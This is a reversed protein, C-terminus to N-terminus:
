RVYVPVDGTARGALAARVEGARGEAVVGGGPDVEAEIGEGELLRVIEAAPGQARLVFTTGPPAAQAPAAETQLTTDAGEEAGGEDAAADMTAEAAEDADDDGGGGLQTGGVVFVVALAAAAAVPAAVVLARKVPRFRRWPDPRGPLSALIEGRREEALELLPSARLAARAAELRLVNDACPRCAVLHESVDRRDADGLEEEVFSLLELESPHKEAM